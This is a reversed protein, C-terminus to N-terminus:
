MPDLEITWQLSVRSTSSKCHPGFESWLHECIEPKVQKYEVTTETTTSHQQWEVMRDSIAVFILKMVYPVRMIMEMM